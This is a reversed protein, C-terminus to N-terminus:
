WGRYKPNAKAFLPPLSNNERVNKRIVYQGVCFVALSVVGVAFLLIGVFVSDYGRPAPENQGLVYAGPDAITIPLKFSSGASEPNKGYEKWVGVSYNATAGVLGMRGEYYAVYVTVEGIYQVFMQNSRVNYEKIQFFPLYEDGSLSDNTL